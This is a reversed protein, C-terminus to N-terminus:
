SNSGAMRGNPKFVGYDVTSTGTIDDLLIEGGDTRTLKLFAGREGEYKLFVQVLSKCRSGIGNGDHTVNVITIAGGTPNQQYLMQVM